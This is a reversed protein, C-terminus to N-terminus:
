LNHAAKQFRNAMADDVPDDPNGLGLWLRFTSLSLSLGALCITNAHFFLARTKHFRRAWEQFRADILRDAIEKVQRQLDGVIDSESFLPSGFARISEGLRSHDVVSTLNVAVFGREINSEELQRIGKKVREAQKTPNLSSLVKCEIGWEVDRIRCRIDPSDTWAIRVDNAAHVCIAAVFLEWTLDRERSQKANRAMLVDSGRFLRWRQDFVTPSALLAKRVTRVLNAGEVGDLLMRELATRGHETQLLHAAQAEVSPPGSPPNRVDESIRTMAKLAVDMESLNMVEVGKSTLLERFWRADDGFTDFGRVPVGYPSRHIDSGGEPSM